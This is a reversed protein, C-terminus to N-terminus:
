PNVRSTMCKKTKSFAYHGTDVMATDCLIIEREWVVEKSRRNMGGESVAMGIVPRQITGM